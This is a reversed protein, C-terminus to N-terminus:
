KDEIIIKPQPIKDKPICPDNDPGVLKTWQQLIRGWCDIGSAEHNKEHCFQPDKSWDGDKALGRMVCSRCLNNPKKEDDLGFAAHGFEHLFTYRDVQGPIRFTAVSGKGGLSSRAINFDSSHAYGKPILVNGASSKDTITIEAIYFQGRTGEWLYASAATIRDGFEKLTKEDVDDEFAAKLTFAYGGKKMLDEFKASEVWTGEFRVMGKETMVEKEPRWKGNDDKIYGLEKRAEKHDPDLEVTKEWEQKAEKQLGHENCWKGLKYHESATDKIKQKKGEYTEWPPPAKLIQQIDKQLITKKEGPYTEVVIKEKDTELIKGEITIQKKTKPDKKKLIVEDARCFDGSILVGALFLLLLPLLKNRM